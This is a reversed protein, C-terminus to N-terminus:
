VVIFNVSVNSIADFFELTNIDAIAPNVSKTSYVESGITTASAYFQGKHFVIATPRYSAILLGRHHASAEIEINKVKPDNM